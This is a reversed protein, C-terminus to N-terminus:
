KLVGRRFGWAVMQCTTALDLTKRMKRLHNNITSPTIGLQRAAVAITAADAVAQLVEIQRPSLCPSDSVATNVALPAAFSAFTDAPKKMAAVKHLHTCPRDSSAFFFRKATAYDM